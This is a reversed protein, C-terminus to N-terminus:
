QIGRERKYQADEEAQRKRNRRESPTDSFPSNVGSVGGVVARAMLDPISMAPNAVMRAFQPSTLARAAYRPGLVSLGTLVPAKLAGLLVPLSYASGSGLTNTNAGPRTRKGGRIVDMNAVEAADDLKRIIANNGQALLRKREPDLTRWAALNEPKFTEPNVPQGANSRRLALEVDDALSKRAEAPMHEFLPELQSVGEAGLTKGYVQGETRGKPEQGKLVKKQNYLRETEAQDADFRSTPVGSQNATERMDATLGSYAGSQVKQSLPVGNKDLRQGLLSREDKIAGYGPPTLTTKKGKKVPIRNSLIKAKIDAAQNRLDTGTGARDAIIADLENLTNSLDVRSTTGIDKELADQITQIRQSVKGKASSVATGTERGISEPTIPGTSPRGRAEQLAQETAAEIGTFQQRRTKAAQNSFITRGTVDEATGAAKNGIMGVSPPIQEDGRGAAALDSNVRDITELRRRTIGGPESFMASTGHRFAASAAPAVLAGGLLRGLDPDVGLQEAIKGGAEGGGVGLATDRTARTVARRTFDGFSPTRGRALSAGETLLAEVVAPGAVQGFEQAPGYGKYPDGAAGAYADSVPASYNEYKTPDKTGGAVDAFYNVDNNFAEPINSVVDGVAAGAEGTGYAFNYLNRGWRTYWPDDGSTRTRYTPDDAQPVDSPTELHQKYWDAFKRKEREVATDDWGQPVEIIQGTEPVDVERMGATTM